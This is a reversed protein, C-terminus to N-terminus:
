RGLGELHIKNVSLDTPGAVTGALDHALEFASGRSSNNGKEFCLNLAERVVESRTTKRRKSRSLVKAYLAEDLRLTLTKMNEGETRTKKTM